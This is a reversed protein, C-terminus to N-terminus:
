KFKLYVVEPPFFILISETCYKRSELLLFKPFEADLICLYSCKISTLDKTGSKLIYDVPMPNDYRGALRHLRGPRYSFGSDVKDGWDPVLFKAVSQVSFCSGLCRRFFRFIKLVICYV